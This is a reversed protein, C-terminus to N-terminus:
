SKSEKNIGDSLKAVLEELTVLGQKLANLAEKITGLGSGADTSPDAPDKVSSTTEPLIQTGFLSRLAKNLTKEMVVKNASALIVRKLEPLAVGEAMLYIPEVYLISNAIPIVLLNGRIVASGSQDWLTFQQSIETNNDIRAEIQIPGDVQVGSPFTYSVLEGYHPGDMRSALWAVMNPKDAPSFPLILVFEVDKEGPLKMIVYYPEVPQQQGFSIETPISWQDEKNFFVTPDTMHYQLYTESQISFMDVPYRLHNKLFDSMQNMPIFLDPFIKKYTQIMPDDPDSVYFQLGGDYADVVVKVSNRIYNFNSTPKSYPYKNTTTYADQIWVLKGNEIVIYPDKDLTLFPAVKTIRSTIEREYMVKSETTVEGSILINVDRFHLAYALKRLLSGLSIGGDGKYQVYVPQNGETPHDFEDTESNVIVYNTTSEGYYIEPRNIKLPGTPPVDKVFFIPRGEETFETVPSAAAGYGHTFQLKENVWRQAEIPLLEPHIERAGVLVQRYEGDIEYRDVDADSFNYYLRLHQIQNYTDVLPKPDWLRVNNITESNDLIEKSTLQGTAEYSRNDIKNIGFAARTFEINREIYIREKQLENPDVTFRQIFSPYLNGIGFTAILWLLIAAIALRNGRSGRISSHLSALLLIGSSATVFALVLLAPIRAHIDTYTAGFVAGQESFLTQYRGLLHGAALTLFILAGIVAAQTKQNQSFQIPLGRIAFQILYVGLTIILTAILVGLIWGQALHLIPLTFVFFSVDKQFVPDLIEFPSSESLRLVSEWNGSLTTGFALSAIAVVLGIVVVTLKNISHITQPPLPLYSEGRGNRYAISVSLGALASFILAGALFLWIKTWLVTRFIGLFGLSEFWLWNTYIELLIFTLALTLLVLLALLGWKLFKGIDTPFLFDSNWSASPTNDGNNTL